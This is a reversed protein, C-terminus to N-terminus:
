PGTVRSAKRRRAQGYPRHSVHHGASPELIQVTRFRQPADRPACSLEGISFLLDATLMKNGQRRLANHHQARRAASEPPPSSANGLERMTVLGHALIGDTIEEVPRSIMSVMHRM